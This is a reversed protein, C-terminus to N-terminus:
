LESQPLWDIYKMELIYKQRITVSAAVCEFQKHEITITLGAEGLQSSEGDPRWFM